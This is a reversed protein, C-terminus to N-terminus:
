TKPHLTIDHGNKSCGIWTDPNFWHKCTNCYAQHDEDGTAGINPLLDAAVLERGKEMDEITVAPEPPAPYKYRFEHYQCDSDFCCWIDYIMTDGDLTITHQRELDKMNHIHISPAIEKLEESM